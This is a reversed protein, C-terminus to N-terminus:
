SLLADLEEVLKGFRELATDVPRPQSLDVGADQLLELPFKSCGGKLFNLYDKLENPGGSVVRESLAIAASIGTAYKYVYFARYFHPIRLCELSLCDDVVFNPGFYLDLLKRYEQRIRELTLPQNQEALEHVVKEFEAFMTQRILTGRISDIEKNILFARTRDDPARKLLTRTLLQENFTSAVEAVFITYNYYQFPQNRASYYSHMSHGAEHTLTYVHELLEPQYNMMIYPAGDYSGSSFAGSQKGVNEYRDCWRGRLGRALAECYDGGLPELSDLVLEVADDWSYEVQLDSLIPVYTDYHHIDPLGMLKRRVEFYRYLSPLHRHVSAILNDYVSTPVNDDFLAAERASPYNRAKAYYIDTQISGNLTAAFTNQHAAFQAYYQEFAKRRVERDPSHLFVMFTAHSLEVRAGHENTIEGFKLDANNLQRFVQSATGSMEGQMALLNELPQSLTHPQYRLLRELLLKFAALEPAALYAAVTERPLAMIEPRIYSAAQSARSSVNRFRAMRGQSASNSVDEAAKLSAYSGLREAQRDYDLDFQLCAALRAPGDALTGRFQAYGDLQQEWAQFAVEWSEDNVFLTSLDWTDETQVEKRTPLKKLTTSM